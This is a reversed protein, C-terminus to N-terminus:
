LQFSVSLIVNPLVNHWLCVASKVCISWRDLSRRSNNTSYKEAVHNRGTTQWTRPLMRPWHLGKFGRAAHMGRHHDQPSHKYYHSLDALVVAPLAYARRMRMGADITRGDILM